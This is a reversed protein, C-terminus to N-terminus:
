RLYQEHHHQRPQPQRPHSRRGREESCQPGNGEPNAHTKVRTKTAGEQTTLYPTDAEAPISGEEAGARAYSCHMM